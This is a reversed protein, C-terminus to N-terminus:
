VIAQSVKSMRRCYWGLHSTDNFLRMVANDTYTDVMSLGCNALFFRWNAELPLDMLAVLLARLSGGHGVILVDDNLHRPKIESVLEALRTTTQRTSEGGSPSFDLDMELSAAHMDPYRASTEQATLGEFIGKNYERLKTMTRLHVDREGLILRATEASRSSDSSYAAGFHVGSLRRAAM